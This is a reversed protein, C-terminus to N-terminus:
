APSGLPPSVGISSPVFERDIHLNGDEDTYFLRKANYGDDQLRQFGGEHRAVLAIVLVVECGEEKVAEIAEQISGGHTIVDDVIAVRRGPTILPKDDGSYSAAIREKTGHVKKEQRVTFTPLDVGTDLAARGIADAIPVAGLELGGVAEAGSEIVADVLISGILAAERPHWLVQKGNYYYKSRQGSSLTYEGRLIARDQMIKRLAEVEHRTTRM